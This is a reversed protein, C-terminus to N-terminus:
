TDPTLPAHDDAGQGTVGQGKGQKPLLLGTRDRYEAYTDGHRAILDQEEVRCLVLWAPIHILSILVLFPSDLILSFAFWMLLSGMSQPHRIRTYIGGFLEQDQSPILTERGADKIGRSILYVAPLGLLLAVVITLAYPVPLTEPLPVPLPHLRYILYAIALIAMFVVSALRCHTCLRYAGNGRKQALAKPRVSLAYFFLTLVLAGFLVALNLWAIM